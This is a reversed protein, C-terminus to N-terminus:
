TENMFIRSALNRMFHGAYAGVVGPLFALLSEYIQARATFQRMLFAAVLRALPVCVCVLLTWRWPRQPRAFGLFMTCALVLFATLLLDGVKIEVFGCFAGLVGGVAWVWPGEAPAPSVPAPRPDSNMPSKFAHAQM